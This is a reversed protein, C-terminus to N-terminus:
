VCCSHLHVHDVACTAISKEDAGICYVTTESFDIRLPFMQTAIELASSAAFVAFSASKVCLRRSIISVRIQSM